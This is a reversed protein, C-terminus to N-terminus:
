FRGERLFHVTLRATEPSSMLARHSIPLVRAAHHPAALASSIAVRGDNEEGLLFGLPGNRSRAICGIAIGTVPALPPATTRLRRLAPTPTVRSALDALRSGANPTGILLLSALGPPKEAALARMVLGGISYGVLHLPSGGNSGAASRAIDVARDFPAVLTPFTTVSAEYGAERLHRLLVRFQGPRGM